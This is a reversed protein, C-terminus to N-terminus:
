CRVGSVFGRRILGLEEGFVEFAGLPLGNKAALTKSYFGAVNEALIASPPNAATWEFIREALQVVSPPIAQPLIRGRWTDSVGALGELTYRVGGCAARRAAVRYSGREFLLAGDTPPEVWLWQGVKLDADLLIKGNKLIFPCNGFNEVGGGCVFFNNRLIQIATVLGRVDM